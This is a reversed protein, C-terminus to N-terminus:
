IFIYNVRLLIAHSRFLAAKVAVKMAYPRLRNTVLVTLFSVATEVDWRGFNGGGWAFFAASKLGASQAARWGGGGV